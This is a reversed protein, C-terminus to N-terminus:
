FEKLKYVNKYSRPFHEYGKFNFNWFNKHFNLIVQFNIYLSKIM